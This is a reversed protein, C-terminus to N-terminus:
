RGVVDVQAQAESRQLAPYKARLSKTYGPNRQFDAVEAADEFEYVLKV